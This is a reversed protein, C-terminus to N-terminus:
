AGALTCHANNISNIIGMAIPILKPEEKFFYKIKKIVGPSYIIKPSNDM